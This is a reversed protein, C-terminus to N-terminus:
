RVGAGMLTQGLEAAQNQLAYAIGFVVLLGTLAAAYGGMAIWGRINTARGTDQQSISGLIPLQVYKRLERLNAFVPHLQALLWALGGGAALGALLVGIMLLGRKPAAPALPVVPPDIVKVKLDESRDAEGTLRASELRQLLQQYQTQNIGYDRSLRVLEAEVEPLVNMMRKLEASRARHDSLQSDAAAIQLEAENLAIQLNQLVLSSSSSRTSGLAGRNARLADIERARQSELGAISEKLAIVDPHADTYQLLLEELRSRADVIRADVSTEVAGPMSSPDDGGILKSRLENRKNLAVAREAELRDVEQMERQLREFYGGRDDPMFGVNQKKFDALKRESESLRREYEALQAVLFKQANEADNRKEGVTQDLFADLLNQVVAHSVRPDRDGYVITYLHSQPDGTVRISKSLEDLLSARQIPTRARQNLATEDIVKELGPRGLMVRRVMEVESSTTPAVALGELLPRLVSTTDVYVRAVTDFRGPLLLIGIWGALCLAWACIIAAWRYRWASRIESFLDSVSERM